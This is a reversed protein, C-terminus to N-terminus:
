LTDLGDGLEDGGRPMLPVSRLTPSHLLALRYDFHPIPNYYTDMQESADWHEGTTSNGYKQVWGNGFHNEGWWRSYRDGEAGVSWTEGQARMTRKLSASPHRGAPHESCTRRM